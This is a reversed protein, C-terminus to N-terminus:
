GPALPPHRVLRLDLVPGPPADTSREFATLADPGWAAFGARVAELYSRAVVVRGTRATRVRARSEARGAYAWVPGDLEVPANLHARVDVRRYNREREDLAALGVEDPAFVV